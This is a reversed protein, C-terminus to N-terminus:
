LNRRPGDCWSLRMAWMFALPHRSQRWKRCVSQRQWRRARVRGPATPRSRPRVANTACFDVIEIHVLGLAPEVIRQEGWFSAGCIEAKKVL